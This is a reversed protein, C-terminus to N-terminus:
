QSQPQSQHLADWFAEDEAASVNGDHVESRRRQLYADRVLSYPDLAAEEALEGAVLLDARRDIARLGSAGWYLRRQSVSFLPDLAFDGVLGVADRVSSPGLLPLILYPGAGLGWYGLTQGLDERYSPIGINTAVDFVGLAGVTTNVALRSLESSARGLKFQLLNNIASPLTALNAFFNTIGRDVPPPTLTRYGRALPKFFAEDVDRNFSFMARNYFRLPDQPDAATGARTACGSALLAALSAAAIKNRANVM